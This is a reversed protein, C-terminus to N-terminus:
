SLVDHHNFAFHLFDAFLIQQTGELGGHIGDLGHAFELSGERLFQTLVHLTLVIVFDVVLCQALAHVLLEVLGGVVDGLLGELLM